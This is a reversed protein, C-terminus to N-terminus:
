VHIAPSPTSHCGKFLTRLEGNKWVHFCQRQWQKAQGSDLKPVSLLKMTGEGSVTIPPRDVMENGSLYWKLKSQYMLVYYSFFLTSNCLYLLIFHSVTHFVSQEFLHLIGKNNLDVDHSFFQRTVPLPSHPTLFFVYWTANGIIAIPHTMRLPLCTDIPPEPVMQTMVKGHGVDSSRTVEFVGAQQAFNYPEASEPYGSFCLTSPCLTVPCIPCSTVTCPLCAVHLLM